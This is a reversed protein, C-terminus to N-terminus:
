VCAQLTNGVVEKYSDPHDEAIKRLAYIGGLRVSLESNGLQKIAETFSTTVQAKGAINTMKHAILGRYLAIAIGFIAAVLLGANRMMESNVKWFDFSLWTFKTLSYIGFSLYITILIVMLITIFNILEQYDELAQKNFFKKIIEM